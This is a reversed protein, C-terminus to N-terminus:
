STILTGVAEPEFDHVDIRLSGCEIDSISTYFVGRIIGGAGIYESLDGSLEINSGEIAYGGCVDDEVITGVVEVWEARHSGPDELLEEIDYQVYEDRGPGGEM